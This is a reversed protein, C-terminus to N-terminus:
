GLPFSGAARQYLSQTAYDPIEYLSGPGPQIQGGAFSHSFNSLNAIEILDSYRHMMNQYRSCVLANGLTHLMGRRLGWDGGTANWETVSLRIDKGNADHKIEDQLQKLENETGNLDGM